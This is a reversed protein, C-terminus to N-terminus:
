ESQSEKVSCTYGGDEKITLPFTEVLEAEPFAHRLEDTLAQSLRELVEDTREPREFLGEVTCIIEDAKLSELRDCPFLVTIQEPRVKLEKVSAVTKQLRAKLDRWFVYDDRCPSGAVRVVPM